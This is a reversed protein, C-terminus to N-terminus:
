EGLVITGTNKADDRGPPQYQYYVSNGDAKSGEAVGNGSRVACFTRFGGTQSIYDGATLMQSRLRQVFGRVRLSKGRDSQKNKREFCISKQSLLFFLCRVGHLAIRRDRSVMRNGNQKGAIDAAQAGENNV